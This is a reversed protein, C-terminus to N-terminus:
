CNLLSLSPLHLFVKRKNTRWELGDREATNILHSHSVFRALQSVESNQSSPRASQVWELYNFNFPHINHNPSLPLWSFPQSTRRSLRVLRGEFLNDVRRLSKEQPSFTRSNEPISRFHIQPIPPRTRHWNWYTSILMVAMMGPQLEGEEPNRKSEAM